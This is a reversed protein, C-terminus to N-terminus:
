RMAVKISIVTYLIPEIVPRIRLFKLREVRLHLCRLSRLLLSYLTVYAAMVSTKGTGAYGTLVFVDKELNKYTFEILQDVAFEQDVTMPHGFARSVNAKFESKPHM